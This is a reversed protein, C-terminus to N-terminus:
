RWIGKVDFADPVMEDFAAVAVADDPKCAGVDWFHYGLHSPRPDLTAAHKSADAIDMQGLPDSCNDWVALRSYGLQALKDWMANPDPNGAKRALGPDFEFFLVPSVDSWTEAAAVVLVPDFGDTDSKILRLRDFAPHKARLASMALSPLADPSGTGAEFRTTGRGRVPSVDAWESDDPTLLSEEIVARPEDGLNRRLFDVWYPDGEVCLVESGTTAIIQAASDGINAGIDLVRMPAGGSASGKDLAVALAILNQGYRPGLTAFDPLAHSWPLYLDVGQVRRKVVRQPWLRRWPMNLRVFARGRQM